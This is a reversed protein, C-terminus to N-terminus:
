LIKELEILPHAYNKELLQVKPQVLGDMKDRLYLYKSSRDEAPPPLTGAGATRLLTHFFSLTNGDPTAGNSLAYKRVTEMTVTVDPDAFMLMLDEKIDRQNDVEDRRQDQALLRKEAQHTRITATAHRILKDKDTQKLVAAFQEDNDPNELESLVEKASAESMEIRGRLASEGLSFIRQQM